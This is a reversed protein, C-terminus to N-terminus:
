GVTQFRPASYARRRSDSVKLPSGLGGALFPGRETGPLGASIAKKTLVTDAQVALASGSLLVVALLVRASRMPVGENEVAGSCFRAPRVGAYVYARPPRLGARHGILFRLAAPRDYDGQGTDLGM